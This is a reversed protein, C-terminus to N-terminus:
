LCAFSQQIADVTHCLEVDGHAHSVFCAEFASPPFYIGQALMARFFQAFRKTDSQCAQEYNVVPSDSFFFGFMGGVHSVQLGIGYRQALQSMRACLTETYHNLQPYIRDADRQCIRLTTLGAAMTLHNGSLTGAQYVPGSPALLSMLSRKGGVAGVPLGGGIIKGLVTIDPSIDYISQAGGLAVRFGTMVEDFVLLSGHQQCLSQVQQLFNKQPLILGMNGCIPELVVAAIQQDHESFCAKVAEIDNFAISLTDHTVASPIGPSSPMGLTTAGSGASVLLADTHGHYCGTFKIIKNRKTAARALRVATMAAETGSNVMRLMDISPMISKVLSALEVELPNCAGYTLGSAAASQIAEIVEKRGHGLIMPGFGGVYDIFQRNSTDSLYAGHGNSIFLPEGGVANFARVPSNVGGPMLDKALTFLEASM